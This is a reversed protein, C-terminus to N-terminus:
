AGTTACAADVPKSEPSGKQRLWISLVVISLVALFESQWNQFSEFWFRSNMAYDTMPEVERGHDYQEERYAGYSGCFHLALSVAFLLGFAISLSNKYLALVWGGRRVPWPASAKRVPERDVEEEKDPDKSESSGVQYLKVTLLVYLTMQLFESEWNEFTASIFHPSRLYGGLTLESRGADAREDNHEKWGTLVQGAFAMLLLLVLVLSLGNRKLFGHKKRVMDSGSMPGLVM